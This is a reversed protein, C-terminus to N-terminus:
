VLASQGKILKGEGKLHYSGAGLSKVRHQRPHLLLSPQVGATDLLACMQVTM